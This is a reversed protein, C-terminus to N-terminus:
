IPFALDGGFDRRLTVHTLWPKALHRQSLLASVSWLCVWTKIDKFGLTQKQPSLLVFLARLGSPGMLLYARLEWPPQGLFSLQCDLGRALPMLHLTGPQSHFARSPAPRSLDGLGPQDASAPLLPFCQHLEGGVGEEEAGFKGKRRSHKMEARGEVGAAKGEAGRLLKDRREMM